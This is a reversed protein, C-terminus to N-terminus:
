LAIRADCLEAERADNTAVLAMGRQRQENLTRELIRRGADDLNAGPEDLLLVPPTHLTAVALQLRTRLGSSLDGVFDSSRARLAFKDLYKELQGTGFQLGRARSFFELNEQVTLERYLPADPASLGCLWKFHPATVAQEDDNWTVTGVSARTLGAVVRLLTSKGAGNAGVVAAVAGAPVSFDLGRLVVRSGYRKGLNTARLTSM